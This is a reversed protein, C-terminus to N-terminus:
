PAVQITPSLLTLIFRILTFFIIGIVVGIIREKAKSQEGTTGMAAAYQVGSFVVIVVAAAVIYPTNDRLVISVYQFFTADKPICKALVGEKQDATCAAAASQVQTAALAFASCLTILRKIM